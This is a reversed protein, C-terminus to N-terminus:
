RQMRCVLACFLFSQSRFMFQVSARIHVKDDIGKKENALDYLQAFLAAQQRRMVLLHLILREADMTEKQLAAELDKM